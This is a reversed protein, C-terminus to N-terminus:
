GPAMSRAVHKGSPGNVSFVCCTPQTNLPQTGTGSTQDHREHQNIPEHLSFPTENMWVSM